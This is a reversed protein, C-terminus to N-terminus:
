FNNMGGRYMFGARTISLKGTVAVKNAQKHPLIGINTPLKKKFKDFIYTPKKKVISKHVTLLTHYAINQHVSMEKAESILTSTPTEYDLGTKLHLVKNQLVQM